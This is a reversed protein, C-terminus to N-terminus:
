QAIMEEIEARHNQADINEKFNNGNQAKADEGPYKSSEDPTNGLVKYPIVDLLQHLKSDKQDSCYNYTGMNIPSNNETLLIGDKNYVAEYCYDSNKSSGFKLNYEGDEGFMHYRTNQMPYLTWKDDTDSSNIENIMEDLTAPARNLKIRFYHMDETIVIHKKAYTDSKECLWLTREDTNSYVYEKIKENFYQNFKLWNEDDVLDTYKCRNVTSMMHKIQHEVGEYKQETNQIYEETGFKPFYTFKLPKPDKPMTFDQTALYQEQGDLLEDGDSDEETPDSLIPLYKHQVTDNLLFNYMPTSYWMRNRRQVM